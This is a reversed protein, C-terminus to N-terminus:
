LTVEDLKHKVYDLTSQRCDHNKNWPRPVLIGQGGAARFEEINQDKDDILLTDPGALQAKSGTLMITNELFSAPMNEKIWLYKGTWSGPNPMPTTLIIIDDFSGMIDVWGYLLRQGDDMWNLNRWFEQNCLGDVISFPFRGDWFKGGIDGFINWKGKEYPYKDYEYPLNLADHVGGVFDVLVGDLDLFVKM